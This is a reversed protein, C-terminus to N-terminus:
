TKSPKVPNSGDGDSAAQEPPEPALGYIARRRARREEPSAWNQCILDRVAPNKVWREFHAFVEEGTKERERESREQEM